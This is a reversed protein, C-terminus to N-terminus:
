QQLHVRLQGWQAILNIGPPFTVQRVDSGDANMVFLQYNM